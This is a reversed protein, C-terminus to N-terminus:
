TLGWITQELADRHSRYEEETITQSQLLQKYYNIERHYQWERDLYAKGAEIAEILSNFLGNGLQMEDAEDPRFCRYTYGKHHKVPCIFFGRYNTGKHRLYEGDVM